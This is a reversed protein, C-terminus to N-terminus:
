RTTTCRSRAARTSAPTWACAAAKPCRCRGSGHDAGAAPLAGAPRHVAPLRPVPGRCQHPMRDGLRPAPHRGARVAAERRRRRPDDAGGPRHRHHERHGPAGGAAAHEDGPLLLEPGQRGRVGGHGREPVEGGPGAGGGARGHGQAHGRQHLAVAGGRDGEPPPAPHLMRARAPLRHQRARRGAGPDRHPAPERRVERHVRPRRRLQEQGRQPLLQLRRLGGQRQLGRAPGQRRRRRQGQDDGPLRHGQRDAGGARAIRDGRELGPHHQGQSGAGAEELRDQRGDRRDLLAEPRHLRHRRGRRPARLGRERVPLRLGPARGARRHGQLGRHDQRGGPLERPQAGPRHVGGRRGTRRPARRPRGRLVRGRHRHGDEQRDQHRPLRNRRPQCDPDEQVHLGRPQGPARARVEAAAASHQRAQAM